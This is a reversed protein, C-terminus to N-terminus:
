ARLIQGMGDSHLGDMMLRKVRHLDMHPRIPDAIKQHIPGDQSLHPSNILDKVVGIGVFCNTFLLKECECNQGVVSTDVVYDKTHM